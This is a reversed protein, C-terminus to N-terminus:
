IIGSAELLVKSYPQQFVSPEGSFTVQEVLRSSQMVLIEDAVAVALEMDHTIFILTFGVEKQLDIIEEM